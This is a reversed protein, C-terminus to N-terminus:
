ESWAPRGPIRCVFHEVAVNLLLSVLGVAALIYLGLRVQPASASRGEVSVAKV